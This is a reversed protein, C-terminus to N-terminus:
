MPLAKIFGEIKSGYTGNKIEKGSVGLSAVPSKGSLEKMDNFTGSHNDGGATCFFALQNFKEQNQHIYTRVPTSVHSAWIPTGIILLDYDAPDNVPDKLITLSQNMADRGSRLWGLIGSRNKTDIIEEIDGELADALEQAIKATHGSRSYYVILTKM